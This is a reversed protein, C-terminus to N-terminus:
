TSPRRGVADAEAGAAGCNGDDLGTWALMALQVRNSRGTKGLIRSVYTKVTSESLFLADAVDHNSWGRGIARVVDLERATLEALDAHAREQRRRRAVTDSHRSILRRTVAPAFVNDGSAATRIAALLAQPPSDKLLFGDAGADLAEAVNEDVNFTTLILIHPHPVQAAIRRTANLGSGPMRIDMLVVDPVLTGVKAEADEADVAEGTVTLDDASEIILRLGSRILSEDDAILVRVAGTM